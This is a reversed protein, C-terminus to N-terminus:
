RQTPPPRDPSHIAGSVSSRQPLWRSSSSTAEELYDDLSPGPEPVVSGGVYQEEVVEPLQEAVDDTVSVDFAALLSSLVIVLGVLGLFIIAPTRSASWGVDTRPELV